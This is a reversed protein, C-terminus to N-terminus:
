NCLIKPSDLSCLSVFTSWTLPEMLKAGMVPHSSITTYNNPDGISGHPVWGYEALLGSLSLAEGPHVHYVQMKTPGHYGDPTTPPKKTGGWSFNIYCSFILGSCPAVRSIFLCSSQTNIHKRQLWNLSFYHSHLLLLSIFGVMWQVGSPAPWALLVALLAEGWGGWPQCMTPRVSTAVRRLVGLHRVEQCRSLPSILTWLSEYTSSIKHACKCVM